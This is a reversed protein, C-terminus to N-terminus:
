LGAPMNGLTLATSYIFNLYSNFNLIFTVRTYNYSGM